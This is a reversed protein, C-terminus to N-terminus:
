SLPYVLPLTPGIFEVDILEWDGVIDEAMTRATRADSAQVLAAHRIGVVRWFGAQGNHPHVDLKQDPYIELATDDSM